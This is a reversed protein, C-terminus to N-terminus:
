IKPYKGHILNNVSFNLATPACHNRPTSISCSKGGSFYSNFSDHVHSMTTANSLNVTPSTPPILGSINYRSCADMIGCGVDHKDEKNFGSPSDRNGTNIHNHSTFSDVSRQSLAEPKIPLTRTINRYSKNQVQKQESQGLRSSSTPVKGTERNDQSYNLLSMPPPIQPLNFDTPKEM